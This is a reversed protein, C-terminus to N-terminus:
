YRSRELVATGDAGIRVRYLRDFETEAMPEVAQASLAAVIQPVTNSHGVVLVTGTAHAARLQSAFAPVPQQADYVTVAIGRADAAAQATQQTRRYGTAYAAQLPAGALLTALTQARARGTAILSPDRPDDGSKEAHRVIIFTVAEADTADRSADTTCAM